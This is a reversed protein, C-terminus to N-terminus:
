TKDHGLHYTKRQVQANTILYAIRSLIRDEIEASRGISDLWRWADEATEVEIGYENLLFKMHGKFDPPLQDKKSPPPEILQHVIQHQKSLHNEARWYVNDEGQPRDVYYEEDEETEPNIWTRKCDEPFFDRAGMAKNRYITIKDRSKPKENSTAAIFCRLMLLVQATESMAVKLVKAYTEPGVNNVSNEVFKKLMRDATSEAVLMSGPLRAQIKEVEEPTLNDKHYAIMDIDHHLQWLKEPYLKGGYQGHCVIDEDKLKNEYVVPKRFPATPAIVPVSPINVPVKEPDAKALANQVPEVKAPLQPKDEAEEKRPKQERETMRQAINKRPFRISM